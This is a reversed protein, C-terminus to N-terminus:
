CFCYDGLQQMLLIFFLQYGYKMFKGKSGPGEVINRKETLVIQLTHSCQHCQITLKTAFSHTWQSVQLTKNIRPKRGPIHQRGCSSCGPFEYNKEISEKLAEYDIIIYKPDLPNKLPLFKYELILANNGYNKLTDFFLDDDSSSPESDSDLEFSSDSESIADNIGKLSHKCIKKLGPYISIFDDTSDSDKALSDNDITGKVDDDDVNGFFELM